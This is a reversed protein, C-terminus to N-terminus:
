QRLTIVPGRVDRVSKVTGIDFSVCASEDGSVLCVSYSNVVAESAHLVGNFSAYYTSSAAGAIVVSVRKGILSKIMEAASM